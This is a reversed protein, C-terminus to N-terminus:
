RALDAARFSVRRAKHPRLPTKTRVEKIFRDAIELYAKAVDKYQAEAGLGLASCFAECLAPSENLSAYCAARDLGLAKLLEDQPENFPDHKYCNALLRLADLARWDSFASLKLEKKLRRLRQRTNAIATVCSKYEEFPIKSTPDGRRAALLVLDREISHWISVMVLLYMNNLLPWDEMRWEDYGYQAEDADSPISKRMEEETAIVTIMSRILKTDM